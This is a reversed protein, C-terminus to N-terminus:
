EYHDQKASKGSIQKKHERIIEKISDLDNQCSTLANIYPSCIEDIPKKHCDFPAIAMCEIRKKLAKITCQGEFAHFTEVSCAITEKGFLLKTSCACVKEKTTRACSMVEIIECFAEDPLAEIAEQLFDSNFPFPRAEFPINQLAKISNLFFDHTQKRNLLRESAVTKIKAEVARFEEEDSNFNTM